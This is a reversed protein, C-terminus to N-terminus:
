DRLIRAERAAARFAHRASVQRKDETINDLAHLMADQAANHMKGPRIPWGSVLLRAAQVTNNVTVTTAATVQVAVAKKWWGREM